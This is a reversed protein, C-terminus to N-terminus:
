WTGFASYPRTRNSLSWACLVKCIAFTWRLDTRVCHLFLTLLPIFNKGNEIFTVVDPNNLMVVVCM